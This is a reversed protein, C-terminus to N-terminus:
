PVEYLKEWIRGGFGGTDSVYNLTGTDPSNLRLSGSNLTGGMPVDAWEGQIAGGAITATFTGRFVNAFTRGRDRSLGLWWVTNGLQRIFYTGADSAAWVGTLDPRISPTIFDISYVPHIEVGNDLVDVPSCETHGCDVVLAGTVRVRTNPALKKGGIEWWDTNTPHSRVHIVRGAIPRGNVLVGNAGDEAWGPFLADGPDGTCSVGTAGTRGYMVMESHISNSHYNLKYRIHEPEAVWGTAWFGPQVDLGGLESEQETRDVRMDFTIDQDKNNFRCFNWYSIAEPFPYSPPYFQTVTGFVVVDDKYPKLDGGDLLTEGSQNKRVISFKCRISPIPAGPNDCSPVVYGGLRTWVNGGFGGTTEGARKQLKIQGPGSYPVIDLALRGNQLITGRPVDVWEGSVVHASSNLTGQFINTFALGSYFRFRGATEDGSLGVWWVTDGIQRIYYTAGDDGVWVGSLDPQAWATATWLAAVCVAFMQGIRHVIKELNM